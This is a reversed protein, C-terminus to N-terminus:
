CIRGKRGNFLRALPRYHLGGPVKIGDVLFKSEHMRVGIESKYVREWKTDRVLKRM